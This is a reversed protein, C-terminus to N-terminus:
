EPTLSYDMGLARLQDEILPEQADADRLSVEWVGGGLFLSREKVGSKPAEFWDVCWGRGKTRRLVGVRASSVWRVHAQQCTPDGWWVFKGSISCRDPHTSTPFVKSHYWGMAVPGQACDAVVCVFDADPPIDRITISVEDSPNFLFYAGCALAVAVALALLRRLRRWLVKRRRRAQYSELNMLCVITASCSVRVSSLWFVKGSGM